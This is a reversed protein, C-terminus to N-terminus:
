YKAPKKPKEKAPKQTTQKSYLRSTLINENKKDEELRKYLHRKFEDDTM